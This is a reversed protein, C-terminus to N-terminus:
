IRHQLVSRTVFFIFTDECRHSGPYPGSHSAQGTLCLLASVGGRRDVPTRTMTARIKSSPNVGSSGRAARLDRPHLERRRPSRPAVPRKHVGAVWGGANWLKFHSASEVSGFHGSQNSSRWSSQQYSWLAPLLLVWQACVLGLRLRLSQFCWARWTGDCCDLGCRNVAVRCPTCGM